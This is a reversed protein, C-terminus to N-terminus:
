ASALRHVQGMGRSPQRCLIIDLARGLDAAPDDTRHPSRFAVHGDPRVLVTGDVAIGYLACFDVESVLDGDDAVRYSRIAPSATRDLASAAEIWANGEPGALLVFGDFLSITSVREGGKRVWFHPARYGPKAHPVFETVPNAVEPPPIDDVVYAGPGAYHVGIDLGTWNGYTRSAAVIAAREEDNAAGSMAQKLALIHGANVLGFRCVREAVERREGNYSDLLEASAEGRLVAGLKWALNHATQIGTNLGFGGHPLTQHASDGALVLRGHRLREAVMTTLRFTYTKLLEIHPEEGVPAGIMAQLRTLVRESTWSEPKDVVPDYHIQAAWMERGDLPHFVGQLGPAMTWILPAQRDKTFRSLDARFHNNVLAYATSGLGTEEIGAMARINSRGGDAAILYESGVSGIRGDMDQLTTVIKRQKTERFGIVETNFRFEAQSYVSAHKFFLPDIRDQAAVKYENPSVSSVAGAMMSGSPMVGIIKGALTEAYIFCESWDPPLSFANIEEQMGLQSLIEMTRITLGRARPLTSVTDRKEVVLHRIGQRSLLISLILGVPGAGAIVVPFDEAPKISSNKGYGMNM